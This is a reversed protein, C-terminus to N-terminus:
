GILARRYANALKVDYRNKAYGAGNYGRAFAAWDRERLARVLGKSRIFAAMQKLQNKESDGAAIFMDVASGHGALRYNEGLIQGMGMSIAEFAVMNNIKRALELRAYQADSGKPYPKTGWNKYAVGLMMAHQREAPSALNRYFVHPEYLIIPRGQSDFGEGRSEVALVARLAAESCGLEKAVEAVDKPELPLARGAQIPQYSM